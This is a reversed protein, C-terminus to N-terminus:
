RQVQLKQIGCPRHQVFIQPLNPCLQHLLTMGSRKARPTHSSNGGWIRTQLIMNAEPPSKTLTAYSPSKALHHVLRFNKLSARDSRLSIEKSQRISSRLSAGEWLYWSWPHPSIWPGTYFLAQRAKQQTVQWPLPSRRRPYFESDTGLSTVKCLLDM